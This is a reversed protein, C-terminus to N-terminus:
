HNISVSERDSEKHLEDSMNLLIISRQITRVHAIIKPGGSLVALIMNRAIIEVFSM